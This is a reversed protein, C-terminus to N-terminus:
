KQFKKVEERAKQIADFISNAANEIDKTNQTQSKGTSLGMFGGSEQLDVIEYGEPLEFVSAPQHGISIGHYETKPMDGELIIGTECDIVKYTTNTESGLGFNLTSSLEIAQSVAVRGKYNIIDSSAVVAKKDSIVDAGLLGNRTAADSGLQGVPTKIFKKQPGFSMYCIGDIIYSISPEKGPAQTMTYRNGTGADWYTEGRTIGLDNEIYILAHYSFLPESPCSSFPLGEEEDEPYNEPLGTLRETQDYINESQAYLTTSVVLLIVALVLEYVRKM